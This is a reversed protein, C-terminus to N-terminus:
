DALEGRRGDAFGAFLNRKAEFCKELRSFLRRFEVWAFSRMGPLTSSCSKAVLEGGDRSRGINARRLNVPSVRGTEGRGDATRASWRFGPRRRGIRRGRADCRMAAGPVAQREIKDCLHVLSTGSALIRVSVSIKNRAQRHRSAVISLGVLGPVSGPRASDGSFELPSSTNAQCIDCLWSPNGPM